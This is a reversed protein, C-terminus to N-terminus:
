EGIVSVLWCSFINSRKKSSADFDDGLGYFGGLSFEYLEILEFQRIVEGFQLDCVLVSVVL